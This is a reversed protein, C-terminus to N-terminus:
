PPCLDQADRCLDALVEPDRAFAFGEEGADFTAEAPMEARALEALDGDLNPFPVVVLDCGALEGPEVVVDFASTYALIPLVSYSTVCGQLGRQEARALLAALEPQTNPDDVYGDTVSAANLVAAVLVPVALGRYRAIAVAALAAAAPVLWVHFRAELHVSRMGLWTVAVAAGVTLGAALLDHRRRVIIAAGVLVVVALMGAAVGSGLVVEAVRVPFAPKFVRELRTAEVMDPLMAAYISGGIALGFIYRKAWAEGLQRRAAVVAIHGLVIAVMYLHTATGVAVAAVYVASWALGGRDPGGAVLRGLAVSSLVGCLLLLSYGRVARSLEIVTPNTAVFLGGCIAPLAGVHRHLAAVLVAVAGGAFTIPALRLVWEEASGTVSYVAHEVLSFAPHNNFLRQSRIPDLLSSTRVYSGVTQASDFDLARGSGPLYAAIVLLGLVAPLLGDERGLRRRRGAADGETARVAADDNPPTSM